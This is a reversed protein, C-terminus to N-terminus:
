FPRARRQIVSQSAHRAADCREVAGRDTAIRAKLHSLPSVDVHECHPAVALLGRHKAQQCVAVRGTDHRVIGHGRRVALLRQQGTIRQPTVAVVQFVAVVAATVVARLAVVAALLLLTTVAVQQLQQMRTTPQAATRGRSARTSASTARTAAAAAATTATTTARM